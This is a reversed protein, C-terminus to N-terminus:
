ECFSPSVFRMEQPWRRFSEGISSRELVVYNGVGADKLAIATGLGAPGAGVVAVDVVNPLSKLQPPIQESSGGSPCVEVEVGTKPDVHVECSGKEASTSDDAAMASSPAKKQNRTRERVLMSLEALAARVIDDATGVGMQFEEPETAAASGPPFTLLTPYSQIGYREAAKANTTCDLKGFAVIGSLRGAAADLEPALKQCHACWPAYFDVVWLQDKQLVKEGFSEDTLQETARAATTAALVAVAM